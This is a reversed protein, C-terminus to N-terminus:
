TSGDLEVDGTIYVLAKKAIHACCLELRKQTSVKYDYCAAGDYDMEYWDVGEVVRSRCM